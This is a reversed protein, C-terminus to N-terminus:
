KQLKAKSFRDVFEPNNLITNKQSWNLSSLKKIIKLGMELPLDLIFDQFNKMQADKLAKKELLLFIEEVASNVVDFRSETGSFM